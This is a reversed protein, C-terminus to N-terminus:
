TGQQNFRGEDGGVHRRGQAPLAETEIAPQLVVKIQPLAQHHLGLHTGLAAHLAAFHLQKAAIGVGAHQHLGAVIGLRGPHGVEDGELLGIHGLKFIRQRHWGNNFPFRTLLFGTLDAHKDGVRGIALTEALKRGQEFHMLCEAIGQTTAELAPAYGNERGRGLQQATQTQTGVLLITQEVPRKFTLQAVVLNRQVGHGGLFLHRLVKGVTQALIKFGELFPRAFLADVAVAEVIRVQRFVIGGDVAILIVQHHLLVGRGFVDGGLLGALTQEVHHLGGDLHGAHVALLHDQLHALTLLAFLLILLESCLLVPHFHLLVTGTKPDVEVVIQIGAQEKVVTLSAAHQALHGLALAEQVQKGIGATGCHM